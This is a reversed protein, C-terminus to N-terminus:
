EYLKVKLTDITSRVYESVDKKQTLAELIHEDVTNEAVIDIIVTGNKKHPGFAREESQERDTYNFSNSFYIENEAKHMTLGMGGTATNGVLFRAAGSQFATNVNYDRAAEDVDGHLEVVQDEGYEKRLAESVIAIEERFACWIITSGVYEEVVELLESLKPNGGEIRQRVYKKKTLAETELDTKFSISGGTIEQLRLMKELANQVIMTQDGLEALGERKVQRYLAKQRDTLQTERRLYVKKPADPFVEDKRVQFVFPELMEMLEDINQYGVIQKDEYGGMIAYRKKFSYFDGIGIIDPDLFEFQMFLDMPGHSIPTGTMIVRHSSRRGLKVCNKARNASHGKIKSSEDVVCMTKMSSNVFEEAYNIASGAALSEVGVLLWKFDHKTNIWKAFDKPKSTDLLYADIPFPAHTDIERIWNKRISLPCVILVREVHAQMRKASALDIIVKTKGTRMDMFLAVSDMDYVKHLAEMQKQRPETKFPYWSPFKAEVAGNRKAQFKAVMECLVEKANGVFGTGLNMYKHIYEVNSKIAPVSWLRNKGDWRRNPIDRITDSMNYPSTIHFRNKKADFAITIM